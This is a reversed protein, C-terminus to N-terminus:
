GCKDAIKDVGLLRRVTLFCYFVAMFGPRPMYAQVVFFVTM